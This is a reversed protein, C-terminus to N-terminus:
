EAAVRREGDRTVTQLVHFGEFEPHGLYLLKRDGAGAHAKRFQESNTWADFDEFSEWITHSSYLVHDEREPGKLLHFEVFGALENLHTERSLWVNEFDKESGKVVKFRNMAIFM